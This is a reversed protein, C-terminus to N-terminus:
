INTKTRDNRLHAVVYLPMYLAPIKNSPKKKRIQGCQIHGHTPLQKTKLSSFPIWTTYTEHMSM